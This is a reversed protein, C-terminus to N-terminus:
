FNSYTALDASSPGKLTLDEVSEGKIFNKVFLFYQYHYSVSGHIINISQNPETGPEQRQTRGALRGQGRGDRLRAAGGEDPAVGRQDGKM